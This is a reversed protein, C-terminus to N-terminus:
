ESKDAAEPKAKWLDQFYYSLFLFLGGFGMFLLIRWLVELKALDVLFLKGVVVFLTVMAVNRLRNNDKMLGTILLISSYVGWAITVYGQGNELPTFESLFWGLFAIHAVLQYVEIERATKLLRFIGIATAIMLLNVLAYANFIATAGTDPSSLRAVLWIGLGAFLIHTAIAVARDKRRWAVLHLLVAEATVAIPLINGSLERCLWAAFLGFVSILYFRKENITRFKPSILLCLILIALDALARANFIPTGELTEMLRSVETLYLRDILWLGCIAFLIHALISIRKSSVRGAVLHLAVAELALVLLLVDGDLFLDLAITFSMLGIFMHAFALNKLQTYNKIYFHSLGYIVAAGMSVWGWSAKTLDPWIVTSFGVSVFPVLLTLLIVHHDILSKTKPSMAADAFGIKSLRWRGPNNVGAVERLVPVAWFLLWGVIFAIQLSWQDSRSKIISVAFDSLGLAMVLWGGIMSLWLLSRWGQYFYVAGTGILILCTYIMLGTVTGGENYLLFPTALGGITGILSFVAEDQRLSVFFAFVTIAIMFALAVPYSVLSFLQFAAFGTICYTAISGGTLVQSFHKKRSYIRFGLVLLATGLSLGFIIRIPPTLWGQDISYKFLFIVALLLLGIGAKNLWFESKRMNAPLEFKKRPMQAPKPPIAAPKPVSPGRTEVSKKVFTRVPESSSKQEVPTEPRSPFLHTDLKDLYRQIDRVASELKGVRDQLSRDSQEDM